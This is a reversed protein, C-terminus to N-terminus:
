GNRRQLEAEKKGWAGGLLTVCVISILCIVALYGAVSTWQGTAGYIATAIMPAFAPGAIQAITYGVSSGTYRIREPFLTTFLPGTVASTLPMAIGQILVIAIIFAVSMGTNVLLFAPVIMVLLLVAGIMYVTKRGIYDSLLGFVPHVAACIASAIAVGLLTMTRDLHATNAGYSVLYTLAVYAMVGQSLYTGAVLLIQKWHTRWAEIFPVKVVAEKKVAAAFEPSEDLTTRVILGVGVLLISLLFPVRWGWSFYDADPLSSTAMFVVAALTVGSPAGMQAFTGYLGKRGPPAHEVSMLTAGGWEGGVMFGQIFRLVVLLVVATEGLLSYGPLLGMLFTCSGMGILTIVLMKKRGVRDGFHGFVIGGLPRALFGIGFTAFALLAAVLPTQAPFFVKPFVLAATLGYLMFDYYEITTGVLSGLATRRAKSRPSASSVAQTTLAESTRAM